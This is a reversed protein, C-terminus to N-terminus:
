LLKDISEAIKDITYHENWYQINQQTFVPRNVFELYKNDDQDLEKIKEILNNFDDNSENELLLFSDQNFVNKIHHTGWYIPIIGALMPNVIKETIYTNIKTNEFCIIFKYQKIFDRYEQTWYGYQLYFGVNNNHHGLSDVKKYKNLENFMNNRIQYNPSSVIFCCFKSPIQTVLNRNILKNLFNNTYIYAVFLPLDVINNKTIESKLVIDYDSCNNSMSEGSYHIKYKWKKIFTLNSGFLSEFLVNATNLDTTIQFNKLKTKSFLLEYFGIHNADTKTVFGDWFANIYIFYKIDNVVNASTNDSLYINNFINMVNQPTYKLYGNDKMFESNYINKDFQTLIKYIDDYNTYTIAKEGLTILHHHDSTSHRCTIVPKLCVAFEGCVLGFSEGYTRAHLLADSTNIFKRKLIMDTTGQLYIINSHNYFKDTNMFLFYIHIHKNVINKIAEKVYPINFSDTGGYRGFVIAENPIKLEKRLDQNTDYVRVMHPVVPFNTKNQTNVDESITSYIEGHPHKTNFVCHILNKCKTTYINDIHGAKIVYLYQINNKQVINDIDERTKYYEITFRNKFKNYAELSVDFETSITNYDRSIIISKNNLLTENYDAYDYMAIETGRLTLKNSLFGIIKSM